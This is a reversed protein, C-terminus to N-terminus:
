NKQTFIERNVPNLIILFFLFAAGCELLEAKKGHPILSTFAFLLLFSIIQYFRAVPVGMFDFFRAISNIRNYVIPFIILFIGLAATLMLSFVLKNIKVGGVVLNHINLEGQANHENFFEPSRIGLLRQGWSIEEGGAFFLMFGLGATVFLFWVNRKKLLRSFRFLCVASGALLGAVTLWEVLHDEQVFTEFLSLSSYYFIFGAAVIATVLVLVVKEILTLKIKFM